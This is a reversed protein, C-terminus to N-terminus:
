MAMQMELVLYLIASIFFLTLSVIFYPSSVHKKAKKRSESEEVYEGFTIKVGNTQKSTFLYTVMDFAGHKNLVSFMGFCFMVGSPITFGDVYYILLSFSNHELNILMYTLFLALSIAILYIFKQWKERFISIM